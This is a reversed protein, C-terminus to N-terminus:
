LTSITYSIDDIMVASDFTIAFETASTMSIVESPGTATWTGDGNDTIVLTTYTDFITLLEIPTPIRPQTSGSGYLIDELAALLFSNIRTSDIIFHASANRGEIDVPKTKVDWTFTSPTPSATKTSNSRTTPSALANYILHIKYGKAEGVTDNGIMTRYSMCFTKRPQKDIFLGARLQVTGDNEAFEKPYTYAQIQAAFDESATLILYKQGDIYYATPEGGETVENVAILGNWPLGPATNPYLVGRDVGTEYFREGAKNWIIKTM